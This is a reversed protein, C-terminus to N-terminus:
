GGLIDLSKEWECFNPMDNNSYEFVFFGEDGAVYITGNESVTVANAGMFQTTLQIPLHIEMM